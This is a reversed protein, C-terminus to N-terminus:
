RATRHASAAARALAARALLRTSDLVPLPSNKENLVLPLETCALIVADCGEAKLDAITSQLMDITNPEFKGYVLEDMIARHVAARAPLPPVICAIGRLTLRELYVSSEVLYTTGLVGARRIGRRAAEDAVVDAIHLWPLPSDPKVYPMAQHITNDPCILFDAGANSLKRASALMLAAVRQLDGGELADVYEALSHAHMTVEPHAHAGLLAPGETCITKFCLAAGEASCAVIGIHAAM